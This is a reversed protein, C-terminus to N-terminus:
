AAGSPVVPRIQDKIREWRKRIAGPTLGVLEATVSHPTDQLWLSLIERDVRDHLVSFVRELEFGVGEESDRDEAAAMRRMVVQAFASDEGEVSSLRRYVRAKDLVAREAMQSVLAWLQDPTGASIRGFRVLDDLRRGLTSMIEQSDFVRRMGVGLKGRVRRRIKAGYRQMFEAAADRDGDRMRTLLVGVEGASGVEESGGLPACGAGVAVGCGDSFDVEDFNKARM